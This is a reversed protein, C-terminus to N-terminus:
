SFKFDPANAKLILFKLSIFFLTLEKLIVTLIACLQAKVCHM